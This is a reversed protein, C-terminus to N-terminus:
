ASLPASTMVAPALEKTCTMLQNTLSIFSRFSSPTPFNTIADFVVVDDVIKRIDQIVAFAEDM